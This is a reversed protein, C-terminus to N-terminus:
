DAYLHRGRRLLVDVRRQAARFEAAAVPANDGNREAPRTDTLKFRGRGIIEKISDSDKVDNFDGLVILRADPNAKFHEDIIGRLVKRRESGSRPNTPM